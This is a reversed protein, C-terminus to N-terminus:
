ANRTKAYSFCDRPTASINPHLAWQRLIGERKLGAKELVRGSAPNETDCVAWVRFVSPETLAWQVVALVAETMLGQTWHCRALVYGLDIRHGDPRASIAGVLEDGARSFLLWSFEAGSQWAALLREVVAQTVGVTKHPPWTLYRTVEADQAYAAFILPADEPRPKRLLLRATHFSEPPNMLFDIKLLHAM